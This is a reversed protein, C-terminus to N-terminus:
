RLRRAPQGESVRNLLRLTRDAAHDWTHDAAVRRGRGVLDAALPADTLVRLLAQAWARTDHAPVVVSAGGAAEIVAAADSTVTPLGAAMAELVPLGFGEVVSPFAFAAAGAYLTLLEQDDVTERVQIRDAFAHGQIMRPVTPPFRRDRQGVLILKVDPLTEAVKAFAAILVAHNKHPRQAGVHLVYRGLRRDSPWPSSSGALARFQDGVGHPVVADDALTRGYLRWLERRTAESVTAVVTSRALALRTAMEYAVRFRRGGPAFSPHAEFICDHVFAVTPVGPHVWPTALHYPVLLVDPAIATLLRPWRSQAAPSVVPVPLDILRVHPHGGLGDVDLRGPKTPDRVVLLDVDRDALRRVLEFTHRGIGHYNDQMVRGDVAVRLRGTKRRGTPVGDTRARSGSNSMM